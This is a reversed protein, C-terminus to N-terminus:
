VRESIRLKYRIAGFIGNGVKEVFLVAFARRYAQGTGIYIDINMDRVILTSDREVRRAIAQM